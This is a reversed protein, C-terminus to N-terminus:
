VGFRTMLGVGICIAGAIRAARRLQAPGRWSWSEPWVPHVVLGLGYLIWAANHFLGNQFLQALVMCVVMGGIGLGLQRQFTWFTKKEM